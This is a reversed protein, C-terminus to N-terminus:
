NIEMQQYAYLELRRRLLSNLFWGSLKFVFINIFIWEPYCSFESKSYQTKKMEEEGFMQQIQKRAPNNM